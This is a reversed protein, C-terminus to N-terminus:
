QQNAPATSDSAAKKHHKKAPANRSQAQVQTEDVTTTQETFAAGNPVRYIRIAKTKEAGAKVQLLSPNIQQGGEGQTLYYKVNVARQGALQTMKETEEDEAYGVIVYSDNPEKQILLAVQDLTAKCENDVRGPKNSNNFSCEGVKTTEEVAVPPPLPAVNVAAECAGTENYANTVTATATISSGPSAGTTDLTASSGTGSIRGATTAYAYTLQGGDPSQAVVSLTAMDGSKLSNPNIVCSATPPPPLKITFSASCNATNNKKEKEDTATVSVTYNGPAVGTTTINATETTGSVRGGTSTWAYTLPHKPNFYQTAVTASVPDGPMVQSPSASCSATPPIPPAGGFTFVIGAFYRFNNQNATYNAVHNASFRTLLYDVQVPRFSIVQNVKFDIGGGAALAFGNNNGSGSATEGEANAINAYANTHAAGVLVEGFPQVKGTHKKIQPGFMYTFVNGNASGTYGLKNDLQNKLGSGQTYGMFDAKVGFYNGFNVDFEGGGGFVNFSTIPALNPHVNVFSFGVPVEVKPVDQASACVGILLGASLVLYKMM